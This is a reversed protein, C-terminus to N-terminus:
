AAKKTMMTGVQEMASKDGAMFKKFLEFLEKEKADMAPAAPKDTKDTSDTNAERAAKREERKQKREEIKAKWEQRKKANEETANDIIAVCEAFTKGANLADCVMKAAETYRHSFYLGLVKVGDVMEGSVAGHLEVGRQYAEDTAAFGMIKAHTVTYPKGTTKNTKQKEYTEYTLKGTAPVSDQVQPTEKRLTVKPEDKELDFRDSPKGSKTTKPKDSGVGAIVLTGHSGLPMTTAPGGNAAQVMAEAVARKTVVPKIDDVEAVDVDDKIEVAVADEIAPATNNNVQPEMAVNKTENNADMNLRMTNDESNQNNTNNMLQEMQQRYQETYGNLAINRVAVYLRQWDRKDFLWAIADKAMEMAAGIENITKQSNKPSDKVKVWKSATLPDDGGMIICGHGYDTKWGPHLNVYFHKARDDYATMVDLENFEEASSGDVKYPTIAVYVHHSKIKSAM